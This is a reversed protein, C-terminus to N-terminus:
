PWPRLMSGVRLCFLDATRESLISGVLALVMRVVMIFTKDTINREQLCVYGASWRRLGIAVGLPALVKFIRSTTIRNTLVASAIDLVM